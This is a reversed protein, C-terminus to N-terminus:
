RTWPEELFSDRAGLSELDSQRVRRSSVAGIFM